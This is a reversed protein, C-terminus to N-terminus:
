SFNYFNENSFNFSDFYNSYGMNPKYSHIYIKNIGKSSNKAFLCHEGEKFGDNDPDLTNDIYWDFYNYSSNLVLKHHYWIHPKVDEKILIYDTGNYYEFNSYNYRLHAIYNNDECLKIEFADLAKISDINWYFEMVMNSKKSNFEHFIKAAGNENNDYIKLVYEFGQWYDIIEFGCNKDSNDRHVFRDSVKYIKIKAEWGSTDKESYIKTLYILDYLEDEVELNFVKKISDMWDVVLYKIEPNDKLEKILEDRVKKYDNDTLSASQIIGSSDWLVSYSIGYKELDPNIAYFVCDHPLFVSDGRKLHKELWDSTDEFTKMIQCNTSVKQEGEYYLVPIYFLVLTLLSIVNITSILKKLNIENIKLYKGIKKGKDKIIKESNQLTPIAKKSFYCITHFIGYIFLPNLFLRSIM